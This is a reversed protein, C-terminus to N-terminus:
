LAKGGLGYAASVREKFACRATPYHSTCNINSHTSTCPTTHPPIHAHHPITRRFTTPHNSQHSNHHSKIDTFTFHPAVSTSHQLKLCPTISICFQTHHPIHRPTSHPINCFTFDIHFTIIHHSIPTTTHFQSSSQPMHLISQKHSTLHPFHHLKNDSTTTIYFWSTTIDHSTSYATINVSSYVWTGERYLVCVCVLCVWETHQM